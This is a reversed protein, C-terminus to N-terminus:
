NCYRTGFLYETESSWACADFVPEAIVANCNPIFASKQFQICLPANGKDVRNGSDNIAMFWLLHNAPMKGGYQGQEKKIYQSFPIEKGLGTGCPLALSLLM